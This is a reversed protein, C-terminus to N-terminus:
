RVSRSVRQRAVAPTPRPLLPFPHPPLSLPSRRPLVATVTDRTPIWDLDRERPPPPLFASSRVSPFSRLAPFADRPPLRRVSTVRPPPEPFPTFGMTPLANCCVRVADSSFVTSTTPFWSSPVRAPGPLSTGFSTGCPCEPLPSRHRWYSPPTIKPCVWSLCDLHAIM